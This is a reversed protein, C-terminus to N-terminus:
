SPTALSAKASRPRSAKGSEPARLVLLSVRCKRTFYEQNIGFQRQELGWDAGLGILALGQDHSSGGAQAAASKTAEQCAPSPASM